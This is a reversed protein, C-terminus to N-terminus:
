PSPAEAPGEQYLTPDMAKLDTVKLGEFFSRAPSREFGEQPGTAFCAVLRKDADEFVAVLDESKVGDKETVSHYVPVQTGGMSITVTDHSLLKQGPEDRSAGEPSQMQARIAKINVQDSQPMRVLMIECQGPGADEEGPPGIAAGQMGFAELGFHPQYGAPVHAGPIIEQALAEVRAPDTIFAQSAKHYLFYFGAGCAGAGLLALVCGILLCNKWPNAAKM